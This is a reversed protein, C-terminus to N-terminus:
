ALLFLHQMIVLVTDDTAVRSIKCAPRYVYSISIYKHFNCWDDGHGVISCNMEQIHM